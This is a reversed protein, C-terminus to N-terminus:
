VHRCDNATSVALLKRCAAINFNERLYFVITAGVHAPYNIKLDLHVVLQLILSSDFNQPVQAALCLM